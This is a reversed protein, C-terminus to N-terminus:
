ASHTRKAIIWTSLMTDPCLAQALDADTERHLSIRIFTRAPDNERLSEVVSM